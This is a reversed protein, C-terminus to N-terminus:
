ELFGNAIIDWMFSKRIRNRGGASIKDRNEIANLIKEVWRDIDDFDCLYGSIGDEIIEDPGPAKHAVVPAGYYMAELITMGFIEKASLNICCDCTVMYKYMEEYPVKTIWTVSEMLNNMVIYRQLENELRGKGIIVLKCKLGKEILKMLINCAMMPKKYDILRGVFLIVIEDPQFGLENRIQNDPNICDQLLSEDLGINIVKSCLVGLSDMEMKVKKTKAINISHSYTKRNRCLILKTYCQNLWAKNDSLVNGFYHICVIQNRNCWKIVNKAWFQNDSFLILREAKFNDLMKVNFIGHLGISLHPLYFVYDYVEDKMIASVDRNLYVVNVEHGKKILANALGTEQVNYSGIQGFDGVNLRLIIIKMWNKYSKYKDHIGKM